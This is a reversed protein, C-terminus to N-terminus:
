RYYKGILSLFCDMSKEIQQKWYPSYNREEERPPPGKRSRIYYFDVNTTADGDDFWRANHSLPTSM